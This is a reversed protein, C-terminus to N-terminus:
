VWFLLILIIMATSVELIVFAKQLNSQTCKAWDHLHKTHRRAM